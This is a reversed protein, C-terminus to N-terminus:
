GQEGNDGGNLKKQEGVKAVPIYNELVVFDDMGEADSPAYGIEQRGENRTIMGSNVTRSTMNVIEGLEYMMLSRPNFRFYYNPAELLKKTLEQQIGMAIPMLRHSIFNNYEDKKFEGVGLMFPPIGFAAAVQKIDLTLSDQVALDNLTLPQVTKIDIEGAPIVWPEGAETTETYSGLLKKRKEKDQLDEGDANISMILSPKWKSKLFAGKTANAQAINEVLRKLMPAFGQGEYPYLKSPNLVFHLVESPRFVEGNYRIAYDLLTRNTLSVQSAPLPVLDEIFGNRGISPLVYSNGCICLDDVIKHMWAKRTSLGYPSIDIKASLGNKVRVDGKEGNQMLHITMSSILDAILYVCEMVQENKRLSVYGPLIEDEFSKVWWATLDERTQRKKSFISM